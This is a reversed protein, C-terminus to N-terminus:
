FKMSREIAIIALRSAPEANVCFHFSTKKYNFPVKKISKHVFSLEAAQEDRAKELEKALSGGMKLEPFPHLIKHSGSGAGFKPVSLFLFPSKKIYKNRTSSVFWGQMVFWV